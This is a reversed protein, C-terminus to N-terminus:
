VSSTRGLDFFRWAEAPGVFLQVLKFDDMRMLCDCRWTVDFISSFAVLLGDMEGGQKGRM